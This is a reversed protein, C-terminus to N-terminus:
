RIHADTNIVTNILHCQRTDLNIIIICSITDSYMNNLVIIINFTFKLMVMGEVCLPYQLLLDRAITDLDHVSIYTYSLM